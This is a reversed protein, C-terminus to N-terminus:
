LNTLSLWIVGKGKINLASQKFKSRKLLNASKRAKLRARNFRWLTELFSVNVQKIWVTRVTLAQLIKWFIRTRLYTMAIGTEVHLGVQTGPKNQKRWCNEATEQGLGTHLTRCCFLSELTRAPKGRDTHTRENNHFPDILDPFLQSHSCLASCGPSSATCFCSSEVKDRARRSSLLSSPPELSLEVWWDQDPWIPLSSVLAAASVVLSSTVEVSLICLLDRHNLMAPFM